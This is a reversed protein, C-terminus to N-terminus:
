KKRKHPRVYELKGNRRRWHGSVYETRGTPVYTRPSYSSYSSSSYSSGSYSSGSYSSYSSSSSYSSTPRYYSSTNTSPTVTNVKPRSIPAHYPESGKVAIEHLVNVFRQMPAKLTGVLVARQVDLTMEEQQGRTRESDNRKLNIVPKYASSEYYTEVTEPEEHNGIYSLIGAFRQLLEKKQIEESVAQRESNDNGYKTSTRVDVPNSSRKEYETKLRDELLQRQTREAEALEEAKKRANEEDLLRQKLQEITAKVLFDEGQETNVSLKPYIVDKPSNDKEIAEIIIKKGILADFLKNLFLYAIKKDIFEEKILYALMREFLIKADSSEMGSSEVLPRLDNKSSLAILMKSERAINPGLDAMINRLRTPNSCISSGYKKLAYQFVSIVDLPNYESESVIVPDSSIIIEETKPLIVEKNEIQESVADEVITNAKKKKRFWDFFSM